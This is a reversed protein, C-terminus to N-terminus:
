KGAKRLALEERAIKMASPSYLYKPSGLEKEREAAHEQATRGFRRVDTAFGIMSFRWLKDADRVLGDNKSIFGQRTDHELIIELIERTMARPYNLADLIGAALRVGENQHNHRLTLLFENTVNKDFLRVVDKQSVCNWGIDHLIIAPIVIDEDGKELEVLKRAYSLTIAHHGPDDRKDQYPLAMRWIVEHLREMPTRFLEAKRKELEARAIRRAAASYIFRTNDAEKYLREYEEKAPTGSRKIDANFGIKSFRWLKDADRVLGENKSIFGPRTDHQIIINLIEATKEPPYHLGNLIGAALRVSENQHQQIVTFAQERPLKGTFMAQWNEPKVQSWGLDHLIIAPIVIDEDGRELVVLQKAYKLTVAHHGTDGRKDQYPLGLQRITEFIKNM